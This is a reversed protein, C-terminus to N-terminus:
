WFFPPRVRKDKLKNSFFSLFSVVVWPFPLLADGGLSLFDSASLEEEEQFIPWRLSLHFVASWPLPLWLLSSSLVGDGVPSRAQRIHREKRRTVYLFVRRSFYPRSFVVVLFSRSAERKKDPRKRKLLM